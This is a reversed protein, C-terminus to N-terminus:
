PAPKSKMKEMLAKGEEMRGQGVLAQGLLYMASTNNPDLLLGRRLIGEANEFNRQRLYCKGLLIYPGSFDPNLWVARQLDAIAADYQEQRAYVDGRRYWALSFNPNLSVEQTLHTEAEAFRGRFIDNIGILYHVEPLKPDLALARNLEAMGQADYEQKLMMQGAVLHAAASEPKMGFLRAFAQESKDPQGNQLYCYGLMYNAENSDSSKELWVIAKAVQASLYYSQGLLLASERYEATGPTEGNIASELAAIAEAYHKQKYLEVGRQHLNPPSSATFLFFGFLLLLM